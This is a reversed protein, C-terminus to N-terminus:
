RLHVEEHLEGIAHIVDTHMKPPLATMAKIINEFSVSEKFCLLLQYELNVLIKSVISFISPLKLLSLPM